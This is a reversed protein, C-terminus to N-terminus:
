ENKVRETVKRLEANCPLFGGNALARVMALSKAPQWDTKIAAEYAANAIKLYTWVLIAIPDEYPPDESTVVVDESLRLRRLALAKEARAAKDKIKGLERLISVVSILRPAETEMANEIAVAARLNLGAAWAEIQEISDPPETVAAFAAPIPFSAMVRPKTALAIGAEAAAERLRRKARLKGGGLPKGTEPDISPM